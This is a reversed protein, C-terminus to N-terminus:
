RCQNSELLAMHENIDDLTRKLGQMDNPLEKTMQKTENLEEIDKFKEKQLMECLRSVEAYIEKSKETMRKKVRVFIAQNFDKIKKLLREKLTKCNLVVPGLMLQDEFLLKEIQERASQINALERAYVDIGQPKLWAAYAATPAALIEPSESMSNIIDGVIAIVKLPIKLINQLHGEVFAIERKEFYAQCDPFVKSFRESPSGRAYSTEHLFLSPVESLRAILDTILQVKADRIESPSPSLEIEGRNKNFKLTM